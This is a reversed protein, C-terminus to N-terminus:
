GLNRALPPGLMRSLPLPLRKWAEVFLHYKANTPSVNPMTKARVLSYEYALPTEEFGWHKKFRYSGTERKSRGYDFLRVGRQGARAMVDWYMFDNAYCDRAAATGGGYYPLVEDRFYFSLVSAVANGGHEVTTVESSSRFTNFLVRLYESSFVPTGLNRVSESYISYLRDTNDDIVGVLGLQQGKRVVARQKRPIANLNAQPDESIPRRFTVYLAKTPWDARSPTLNRLELYDVALERALSVAKDELAHRIPEDDAVAGGYVCFPTSILGSGFLWSRVHALPLVGVVRGAREALLYYTKHPTAKELVRRWGSLHFFTAAPTAQVYADWSAEEGYGLTRITTPAETM